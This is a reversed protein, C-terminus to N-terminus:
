VLTQQGITQLFSDLESQDYYVQWLTLGHAPATMGAKTRDKALLMTQIDAPNWKGIGVQLLTGVIIRVMNYLFGNGTCYIHLFQGEEVLHIGYITRVKNEVHTGSGCFSTFDHTGLLFLSAEAIRKRDISRPHHYAYRHKFVDAVAARDVTYRYTKAIASFRAHFTDPVYEASTVILDQPLRSNLAIPWKEVPIHHQVECSVVQYRAHVGADTRGSGELSLSHKVISQMVDTLVGQVTRLGPQIQFGHFDTGDYSISLKIKEGSLSKDCESKLDTLSPGLRSQPIIATVTGFRMGEGFDRHKHM